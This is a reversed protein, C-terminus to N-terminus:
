TVVRLTTIRVKDVGKIGFKQTESGWRRPFVTEKHVLGKLTKLQYSLASIIIIEKSTRLFYFPQIYKYKYLPSLQLSFFVFLCIFHM